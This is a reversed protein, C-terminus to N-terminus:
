SSRVQASSQPLAASSSSVQNETQHCKDVSGSDDRSSGVMKDSVIMMMLMRLHWTDSVKDIEQLSRESRHKEIVLPIKNPYRTRTDEAEKVRDEFSIRDQYGGPAPTKNFNLDLSSLKKVFFEDVATPCFM